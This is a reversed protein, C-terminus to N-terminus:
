GKVERFRYIVYALGLFVAAYAVLIVAAEWPYPSFTTIDISASQGGAVGIHTISKHSFTTSLVSTIGSGGYSLSFWPETGTLAGIETLIPFGIILILLAAVVSVTSSRFFSSFLFAVALAALLFLVAMGISSFFASPVTGYFYEVAGAAFGYYVLGVVTGTVAAACFRGALLTQRRVPQSLMLYGPGGALDVALADGGLFAATIVLVDVIEALYSVLYDSASAYNGTVTAVGRHVQFGLIAAAIIAVFALLGLFRWTRLYSRLQYAFATQFQHFDSVNAAM